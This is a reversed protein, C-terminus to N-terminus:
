FKASYPIRWRQNGFWGAVWMALFWAVRSEIWGECLSLCKDEWELILKRSPFFLRNVHSCCHLIFAFVLCAVLVGLMIHTGGRGDLLCFWPAINSLGNNYLLLAVAIRELKWAGVNFSLGGLSYYSSLFVAAELVSVLFEWWIVRLRTPSYCLQSFGSIILDIKM